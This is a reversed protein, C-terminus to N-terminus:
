PKGRKAGKKSVVMETVKCFGHVEEGLRNRAPIVYDVLKRAEAETKANFVFVLVPPHGVKHAWYVGFKM